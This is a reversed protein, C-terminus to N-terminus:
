RANPFIRKVMDMFENYFGSAPRGQRTDSVYRNVHTMFEPNTSVYVNQINADASKVQQSIQSEMDSSLQTQNTHLAAAVYATRNTVLVYARSVGPVQTVKAAAQDAVQVNNDGMSHAHPSANGQMNAQPSSSTQPSVSAQPYMSAQNAQQQRVNNANNGCGAVAATVAASLLLVALGSKTM